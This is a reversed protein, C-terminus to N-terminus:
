TDCAPFHQMPLHYLINCVTYTSGGAFRYGHAALAASRPAYGANRSGDAQLCSQWALYPGPELHDPTDSSALAWRYAKLLANYGWTVLAAINPHMALMKKVQDYCEQVKGDEGYANVMALQLEFADPGADKSM